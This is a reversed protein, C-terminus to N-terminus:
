KVEFPAVQIKEKECKEETELYTTIAENIATKKLQITRVKEEDEM